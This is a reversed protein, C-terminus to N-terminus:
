SFVTDHFGNELFAFIAAIASWTERPVCTGIDSSSLIDALIQDEVITIGCTEAIELMKEAVAGKGNAIVVPAEEMGSWALAVSKSVAM